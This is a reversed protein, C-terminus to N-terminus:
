QDYYMFKYCIHEMLLNIEVAPHEFRMKYISHIKINITSKQAVYCICAIM